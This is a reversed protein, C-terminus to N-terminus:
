FETGAEMHSVCFSGLYEFFAHFRDMSMRNSQRSLVYRRGIRKVVTLLHRYMPM